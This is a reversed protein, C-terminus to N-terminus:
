SIRFFSGAGVRACEVPGASLGEEMMRNAPISLPNGYLALVTKKPASFAEVPKIVALNLCAVYFGAFFALRQTGNLLTPM